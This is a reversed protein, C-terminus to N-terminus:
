EEIRKLAEMVESRKYFYKRSMGPVRYRPLKLRWMSPSSVNLEEQLKESPIIEDHIQSFNNLLEILKKAQVETMQSM